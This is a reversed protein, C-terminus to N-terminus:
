RWTLRSGRKITPHALQHSPLGSSCKTLGIGQALKKLCHPCQQSRETRIPLGCFPCPPGPAVTEAKGRHIVWIKAWRESCGTADRLEAIALQSQGNLALMSIRHYQFPELEAFEPIFTRCKTCFIGRSPFGDGLDRVEDRTYPPGRDENM